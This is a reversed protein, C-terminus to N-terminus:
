NNQSRDNDNSDESISDNTELTSHDEDAILNAYKFAKIMDEDTVSECMKIFEEKHIDSLKM